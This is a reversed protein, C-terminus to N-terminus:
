AAVEGIRGNPGYSRKKSSHYVRFVSAHKVRSERLSKIESDGAITPLTEFMDCTAYVALQSEIHSKRLELQLEDAAREATAISKADRSDFTIYHRCRDARLRLMGSPVNVLLYNDIM